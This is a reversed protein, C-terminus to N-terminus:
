SAYVSTYHSLFESGSVSPEETSRYCRNCQVSSSIKRNVMLEVPSVNPNKKLPRRIELLPHNKVFAKVEVTYHYSAKGLFLIVWQVGMKAVHAIVNSLHLRFERNRRRPFSNMIITGGAVCITIFYNWRAAWDSTHVLEDKEKPLGSPPINQRVTSKSVTVGEMNLHPIINYTSTWFKGSERYQPM